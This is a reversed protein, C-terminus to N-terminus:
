AYNVVRRTKGKVLVKKSDKTSKTSKMKKPVSTTAINTLMNNEGINVGKPIDLSVLQGSSENNKDGLIADPIEVESKRVKPKKALILETSIKASKGSKNTKSTRDKDVEANNQMSTNKHVNPNVLQGITQTKTDQPIGNITEQELPSHEAIEGSIKSLRVNMRSIIKFLLEIFLQNHDWKSVDYTFIKGAMPNYVELTNIRQSGGSELLVKYAILQLLWDVDDSDKASCKFDVITSDSENLLDIEGSIFFQENSARVIPKCKFKKNQYNEIYSKMDKFMEARDKIFADYTDKRYLLRRRKALINTSLSIEYVERLINDTGNNVNQYVKYEVLKEKEFENPLYNYTLVQIQHLPLGLQKSKWYIKDTMKKFKNADNVGIRKTLFKNLKHEDIQTSFNNTLDFEALINKISRNYHQYDTKSLTVCYLLQKMPLDEYKKLTPDLEMIKRTLYRDIFEGFDTHLYYKDVTADHGYEKHIERTQPEPIMGKERLYTLDVPRFQRIIETVKYETQDSRDNNMKGFIDPDGGRQLLYLDRPLEGLFRTLPLDKAVGTFILEERARTVGVYFLRREEQVSIDDCQKPFYSDSCSLMYVIQWELGKAKHITTLLLHDPLAKPPSDRSNDTILSVFPIANDPDDRNHKAISSEFESLPANANSIVAIKHYSIGKAQYSLLEKIIERHQDSLTTYVKITPKKQLSKYHPTMTKKIQDKNNSISKNAMMIIEPTSRYNVTLMHTDVNKVYQDFNMIYAVNTGRFTYINQADDGIVTVKCGYDAFGKIINYHDESVDQFEDFFVFKYQSAIKELGFSTQMFKAIYPAFERVSLNAHFQDLHAKNKNYQWQAFSDITKINVNPMFGFLEKIKKQLHLQAAKNFTVLLIEKPVIGTDILYKIRCLVTTSKGSGACAIIRMNREIDARIIKYQEDNLIVIEDGFNYERYNYNEIGNHYKVLQDRCILLGAKPLNKDNDDKLSVFNKILAKIEKVTRPEDDFLEDLLKM